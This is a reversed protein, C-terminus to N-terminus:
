GGSTSLALLARLRAAAADGQATELLRQYVAASADVEGLEHRVAALGLEAEADDPAFTLLRRFATAAGDLDGDLALCSAYRRLADLDWPDDRVANEAARCEEAGLGGAFLVTPRTFDARTAPNALGAQPTPAAGDSASPTAASAESEGGAPRAPAAERDRSGPAAPEAPEAPAPPAADVDASPQADLDLAPARLSPFSSTDRPTLDTAATTMPAAVGGMPEALLIAVHLTRGDIWARAAAPSAAMELGIDVGGEGPRLEVARLVDAAATEIRRPRAVVGGAFVMLGGAGSAADPAAAAATPAADFEIAIEARRGDVGVAVDRVEAHAAVALLVGAAAALPASLVAYILTRGVM